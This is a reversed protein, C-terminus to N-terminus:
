RWHCIGGGTYAISGESRAKDRVAEDYKVIAQRLYVRSSSKEAMFVNHRLMGEIDSGTLYRELILAGHCFCLRELSM